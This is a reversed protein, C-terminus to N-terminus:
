SDQHSDVLIEYVDIDYGDEEHDEDDHFTISLVRQRKKNSKSNNIDDDSSDGVSPYDITNNSRDDDGDSANESEIECDCGVDFDSHHKYYGFYDRYEMSYVNSSDATYVEGRHNQSHKKLCSSRGHEKGEDKDLEPDFTKIQLSIVNRERCEDSKKALSKFYHSLPPILKQHQNKSKSGGLCVAPINLYYVIISQVETPPNGLEISPQSQHATSPLLPNRPGGSTTTTGDDCEDSRRRSRQQPDVAVATEVLPRKKSSTSCIEITNM